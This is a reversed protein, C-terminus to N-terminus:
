LEGLEDLEEETMGEQWGDPVLDGNSADMSAEGNIFEIAKLYEAGDYVLKKVDLNEEALWDQLKEKYSDRVWRLEWESQVDKFVSDAFEDFSKYMKKAM